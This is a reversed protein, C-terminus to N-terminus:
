FWNFVRNFRLAIVLFAFIVIILKQAAGRGDERKMLQIAKILSGGIVIVAVVAGIIYILNSSGDLLSIAQDEGIIGMEYLVYIVIMPVFWILVILIPFLYSDQPKKKM